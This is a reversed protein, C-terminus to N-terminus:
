RTSSIDQFKLPQAREPVSPFHMRGDDKLVEQVDGVVAVGELLVEGEEREVREGDLSSAGKLASCVFHCSRGIILDPKAYCNAHTM